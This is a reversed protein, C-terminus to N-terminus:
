VPLIWSVGALELAERDADELPAADLSLVGSQELQAARQRLEPGPEPIPKVHPARVARVEAGDIVLALCGDLRLGRGIAECAEALVSETNTVGEVGAANSRRSLWRGISFDDAGPVVRSALTGVWSSAPGALAAILVVFALAWGAIGHGLDHRWLAGLWEGAAFVVLGVLALLLTVTAARLAVRFEFIRHVATAWAFSASVLLILLVSWREGWVETGPSIAHVAILAAFPVVGVLTGILAVRLRRRTDTSEAGRYSALFLGLAAILGITVWLSVVNQLLDVVFATTRHGSADIAILALLPVALISSVLYAMGVWGGRRGHARAEPFSAFFDVFLAPLFTGVVTLIVADFIVLSLSTWTRAPMITWALSLCLLFFTRTLPDRRQSWVWGGLLVFGSAVGLLIAMMRREGDPLPDPVLWVPETKGARTRLLTLPRGPAARGLPGRLYQSQSASAPDRLRDGALLGARDGPSGPEVRIVRSDKLVLGSYVQRPLTLASMVLVAAVPVLLWSLLSSPHRDM